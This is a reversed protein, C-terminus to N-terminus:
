WELEDEPFFIQGVVVVVCAVASQATSMMLHPVAGVTYLTVQVSIM